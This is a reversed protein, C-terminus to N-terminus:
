NVAGDGAATRSSRETPWGNHRLSIPFAKKKLILLRISRSLTRCSWMSLPMKVSDGMKGNPAQVVAFIEQLYGLVSSGGIHVPPCHVRILSRKLKVLLSAALHNERKRGEEWMSSISVTREVGNAQLAQERNGVCLSFGIQCLVVLIM